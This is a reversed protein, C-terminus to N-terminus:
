RKGTPAPKPPEKPQDTEAFSTDVGRTKLSMVFSTKDVAKSYAEPAAM